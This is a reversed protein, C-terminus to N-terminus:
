KYFNLSKPFNFLTADKKVTNRWDKGCKLAKVEDSAAYKEDKKLETIIKNMEHARKKLSLNLGLLRSYRMVVEFRFDEIVKSKRLSKRTTNYKLPQRLFEKKHREYNDGKEKNRPNV